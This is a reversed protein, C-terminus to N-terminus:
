ALRGPDGPPPLKRFRKRKSFVMCVRIPMAARTSAARTPHPVCVAGGDGGLVLVGCGGAAAGAASAAGLSPAAVSVAFVVRTVRLSGPMVHPPQAAETRPSRDFTSPMVSMVVSMGLRIQVKRMFDPLRSRLVIKSSNEM